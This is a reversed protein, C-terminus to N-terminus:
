AWFITSAFSTLCWYGHNKLQVLFSWNTLKFEVPVMLRRPSIYPFPHKSKNKSSTSFISREWTPTTRFITRDSNCESEVNGNILKYLACACYTNHRLWSTMLLFMDCSMNYHNAPSCVSLDDMSLSCSLTSLLTKFLDNPTLVPGTAFLFHDAKTICSGAVSAPHTTCLYQAFLYHTHTDTHVM